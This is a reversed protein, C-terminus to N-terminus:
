TSRQKTIFKVEKRDMWVEIKEPRGSLSLELYGIGNGLSIRHDPHTSVRRARIRMRRRKTFWNLPSKSGYLLSNLRDFWRILKAPFENKIGSCTIQWIDPSSTRSRLQIDYAFSYHVDGSLIIFNEPTKPHQFINLIVNASGPHAMWNEADVILPKGFYTFIRQISEILKVGFIPAPSILLVSQEDILENQLESLAEWDMLGSPKNPDSESRWRRTRTDLAILKPSTPVTYHWQDFDLIQSILNQHQDAQMTSLTESVNQPWEEAFAQPNNGWGQCLWYGILANGLMQRAFPNSYATEEWGRTLNWDDTVDHDDFMMYSPIHALLRQIQDLNNAFQEIEQQEKLYLERKAVPIRSDPDLEVYRWLAPSWVLLYMAFVEAFTILHNHASDSTFIPKRVGRFLKKLADAAPKDDPLLQERAYYSNQHLYLESSNKINGTPLQEDPLGLLAITQHIAQLMPGAVDDAYIQDGSMILLAPRQAPTTNSLRRDATTLADTGPHHPKRCSGHLVSNLHPQYCLTFESEGPYLLEPFEESLSLSNNDTNLTLDYTLIDGPTLPIVFDIQLLYTFAKEGVKVSHSDLKISQKNGDIYIESNFDICQSTVLWLYLKQDTFRRVIPGALLLPLDTM